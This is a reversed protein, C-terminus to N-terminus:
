LVDIRSWVKRLLEILKLREEATLAALLAEERRLAVRQVSAYLKRGTATLELPRTRGTFKGHVRALYGDQALKSVSRSVAGADMSILNVVENSSATGLSHISALVRWEGIGFRALYLRSSTATWRNALTGLFFPFYAQLEIPATM